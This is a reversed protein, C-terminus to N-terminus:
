RSTGSAPAESLLEATEASVVSNVLRKGEWRTWEYYPGHRNAPDKHCSCGAKGCTKMRKSVTGSCVYGMQAIEERLGDITRELRQRQRATSKRPM